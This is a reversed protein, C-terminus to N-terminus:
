TSDLGVTWLPMYCHIYSCLSPLCVLKQCRKSCYAPKIEMPCKGACRRLTSKRTGEIGCGEAACIYAIPTKAKKEAKSSGQTAQEAFWKRAVVYVEGICEESFLWRLRSPYMDFHNEFLKLFYCSLELVTPSVFGLIACESASLAAASVHTIEWQEEPTIRMTWHAEALCSHARVRLHLPM